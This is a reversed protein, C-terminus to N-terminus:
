VERILRFDGLTGQMEEGALAGASPGEAGGSSSFRALLDLAALLPHLRDALEPHRGIYAEVDVPEGAHLRDTIEAVAEALLRDVEGSVAGARLSESM